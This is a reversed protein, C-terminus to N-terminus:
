LKVSRVLGKKIGTLEGQYGGKGEGGKYVQRVSGLKKKKEDFKKRKNVRPNRIDKKRRPALGKNKQIAYSIARKGDPGIEEVPVVEGGERAAQARAEAQGKKDEKHKKHRAKVMDYYEGDDSGEGRVDKAREADEEDSEGGLEEEPKPQQKGRREAEANLRAQRDKLRERYPIDTDGGADKGAAGRKNAKQAIQSSYFRLSRRKKAKEAAEGTTLGTEEGFDSDDPDEVAVAGTLKKAKMAKRRAKPDTLHSIEALEEELKKQKEAKQAAKEVQAAEAHRQAKTKRLKRPLQQRFEGNSIAVGDTTGNPLYIEEEITSLGNVGDAIHVPKVEKLDKVQHWTQRTEFMYAIVPHDRLDASTAKSPESKAGSSLLVFYMAVSALYAVLAQHKVVALPPKGNLSSVTSLRQLGMMSAATHIREYEHMLQVFEQAIPEFEPHRTRLVKMKEEPEMDDTIQLQPLVETIIDHEEAVDHGKRDKAPDAWDAEDFAFDAETLAQLRKQQLRRAEAEEMLADEQTEIKDADYYDQKSPGWGEVDVNGEDEVDKNDAEFRAVRQGLQSQLTALDGGYEDLDDDEDEDASDDEPESPSSYALVENDSLEFAKDEEEWKRRRKAEPGDDLLVKDRGIHFEDEADAVDEYTDIRLKSDALDPESPEPQQGGSPMAKRKKAM